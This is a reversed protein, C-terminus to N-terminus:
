KAAVGYQEIMRRMAEEQEGSYDRQAYQQASIIKGPSARPKKPEDKMCAELYALNPAGHKVCSEIGALVKDLGHVAYLDILKARVTNSRTFGADEAATLVRDHEAAIRHDEDDAAADERARACSERSRNDNNSNSYTIRIRPFKSEDTQEQNCNIDNSQLQNCNIDDTILQGDEPGPYKSKDARKQQHKDWTNMQLYPKGDVVYVTILEAAQLGRLADEMEDTSIDRLPFLRSCLLKTRADFRGFDDCNVMLRYFVIEQFPTLQDINDSTCISEKLIRSPM